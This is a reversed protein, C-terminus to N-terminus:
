SYILFINLIFKVNTKNLFYSFLSILSHGFKSLNGLEDKIKFKMDIERKDIEKKDIEKKDTVKKVAEKKDIEKKDIEKKTIEKKDTEKRTLQNYFM